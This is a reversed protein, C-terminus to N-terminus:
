RSEEFISINDNIYFFFLNINNLIFIMCLQLIWKYTYIYSLLVKKINETSISIKQQFYKRIM